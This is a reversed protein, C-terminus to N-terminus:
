LQQSYDRASQAAENLANVTDDLSKKANEFIQAIEQNVNISTGELAAQIEKSQNDFDDTFSQVKGATEESDDALQELQSKLESVSPM